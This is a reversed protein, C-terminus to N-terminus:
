SKLSWYPDIYDGISNILDEKYDDIKEDGFMESVKEFFYKNLGFCYAVRMVIDPFFEYSECYGELWESMANKLNESAYEYTHWQKDALIDVKELAEDSISNTHERIFSVCLKEVDEKSLTEPLNEYFELEM